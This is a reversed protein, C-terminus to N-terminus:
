AGEEGSLSALAAGMVPCRSATFAPHEEETLLGLDLAIRCVAGIIILEERVASLGPQRAPRTLLRSQQWAMAFLRGYRSEMPDGVLDGVVKFSARARADRGFADLSIALLSHDRAQDLVERGHAAYLSSLSSGFRKEIREKVLRLRRDRHRKYPRIAIAALLNANLTTEREKLNRPCQAQPRRRRLAV